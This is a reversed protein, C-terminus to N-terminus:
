TSQTQVHVPIPTHEKQYVRAGLIIILSISIISVFGLFFKLFDKDFYESM